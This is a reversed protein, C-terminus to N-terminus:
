QKGGKRRYLGKASEFGLWNAIKQNAGFGNVAQSVTQPKVDLLRALDAQKLGHVVLARKLAEGVQKKTCYKEM